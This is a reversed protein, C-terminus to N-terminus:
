KSDLITGARAKPLSTSGRVILEPSLLEVRNGEATKEEMRTLLLRVGEVAMESVPPFVTTLSVSLYEAERINDYGVVSIDEPVKLGAEQLAKMAGIAINDYAAMIATPLEGESLLEKMRLYGGREFREMGSKIFREELQIGLEEAIRRFVPLRYKSSIDEGIFGSSKHGLRALHEVALRMGLSGDILICDNGPTEGVPDLFIVPIGAKGAKEATHRAGDIDTIGALIVGEVKRGLFMNFKETEKEAKFDTTGIILTYGKENLENEVSNVIKAYYNSSIEPVVMGILRTGKGVLARASYNPTYGLEGAIKAIRVRTEESVESSGSLARSVSSVNVGAIKAIDKITAM